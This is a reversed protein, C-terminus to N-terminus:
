SLSSLRCYGMAGDFTSLCAHESDRFIGSRRYRQSEFAKPQKQKVMLRELNSRTQADLTSRWHTLYMGSLTDAM